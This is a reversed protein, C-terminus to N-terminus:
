FRARTAPPLFFLPSSQSPFPTSPLDRNQKPPARIETSPSSAKSIKRVRACVSLCLVRLPICVCVCVCPHSVPARLCASGPPPDRSAPERRGKGANGTKAQPPRQLSASGALSPHLSLNFGRPCVPYRSAHSRHPGGPLGGGQGIRVHGGPPPASRPQIHSSIPFSVGPNGGGKAPSVKYM